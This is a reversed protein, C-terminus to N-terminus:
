EDETSHGGIVKPVSNAELLQKIEMLTQQSLQSLDANGIALPAGDKGTHEVKDAANWDERAMNKLAFMAITASGNGGGDKAIRLAEEEWHAIAKEKGIRLAEAFEPYREKWNSFTRKTVGIKGACGRVSYGQALLDIVEQCHEPKYKLANPADAAKQRGKSLFKNM